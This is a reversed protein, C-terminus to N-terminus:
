DVSRSPQRIENFFDFSQQLWSGADAIAQSLDFSEAQLGGQGDQATTPLSASMTLPLVTGQTTSRHTTPQGYEPPQVIEHPTSGPASSQASQYENESSPSFLKPRDSRSTSIQPNPNTRPKTSDLHRPSITRFASPKKETSFTCPSTADLMCQTSMAQMRDKALHRSNQLLAGEATTPQYYPTEHALLVSDEAAPSELPQEPLKGFVQEPSELDDQFDKQALLLAAQTSLQTDPSTATRKEAARPLATSHLSPIRASREPASVQQASPLNGCTNPESEIPPEQITEKPSGAPEAFCLDKLQHAPKEAAHSENCSLDVDVEEHADLVVADDDTGVAPALVQDDEEEAPALRSEQHRRRYEFRPLQSTSSMVRFSPAAHGNSKLLTDASPSKRASELAESPVTVATRDSSATTRVSGTPVTKGPTGKRSATKGCLRSASRRVRNGARRPGIKPTPSSPPEFDRFNMLKRDKKLWEAARTAGIAQDDTTCLSTERPKEVSWSPALTQEDRAKSKAARKPTPGSASPSANRSSPQHVEASPLGTGSEVGEPHTSSLDVRFKSKPDTEQVLREDVQVREGNVKTRAGDRDVLGAEGSGSVFGSRTKRSKKWPNRWGNEFPGKLAFSSIYLQNGRLYSQALKEIRKRKVARSEEDLEDDSGLLDYENDNDDAATEFTIPSVPRPFPM